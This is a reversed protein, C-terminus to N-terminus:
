KFYEPHEKRMWLKDLEYRKLHKDVLAAAKSGEEALSHIRIKNVATLATEASSFFASLIILFFLVILKIISDIDM